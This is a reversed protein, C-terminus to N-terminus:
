DSMAYQIGGLLHKLFLPDSYNEERHGLATYFSRGGEFAHYWAIPHDKGYDGGQYSSEDIAVLVHISDALPTFNYWEDTYLWRDPLHTSAPHNKNLTYLEAEQIEPHHTFFAGLLRGYWAWEYESASAGHVGVFGGGQRIYEEFHAKQQANLLDGSTNLFIVAKYKKLSDANFFSSNSTTDVFFHNQQGLKQIAQTGVEIASHRYGTTKNFVLVRPQQEQSFLLSLPLLLFAFLSTFPKFYKMM